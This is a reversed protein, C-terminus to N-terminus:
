LAFCVDCLQYNNKAQFDFTSGPVRNITHNSSRSNSDELQKTSLWLQTLLGNLYIGENTQRISSTLTVLSATESQTRQRQHLRSKHDSPVTAM